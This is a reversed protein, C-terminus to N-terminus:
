AKLLIRLAGHTGRAAWEYATPAETLPLTHSVLPLLDLQGKLLTALHEGIGQATCLPSSQPPRFSDRPEASWGFGPADLTYVPLDEFGTMAVWGPEAGESRAGVVVALPPPELSGEMRARLDADNRHVFGTAGWRRALMVRGPISDIALPKVSEGSQLNWANIFALSTPGCGAVVPRRLGAGRLRRAVEYASAYCDAILVGGAEFERPNPLPVLNLDADPVRIWGAHSGPLDYGPLAIGGGVSLAPPVLVPDDLHRRTVAEGTEEVIGACAGGPTVAPFTRRGAYRELDLTSISATTVRVIADGPEVVQPRDVEVTRVDGPAALTLAFM